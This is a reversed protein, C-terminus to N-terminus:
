NAPAVPPVQDMRRQTDELLQQHYKAQTAAYNAIEDDTLIKDQTKDSMMQQQPQQRSAGVLLIPTAKPWTIMYTEDKLNDPDAVVARTIVLTQRALDMPTTSPPFTHSNTLTIKAPLFIGNTQHFDECQVLISTEGGSIIEFRTLADKLAPDFTWREVSNNPKKIELHILHDPTIHVDATKFLAAINWDAARYDRLGLAVDILQRPDSMLQKADPYIAGFPTRQNSQWRAQEARTPTVCAIERSIVPQGPPSAPDIAKEYRARDGRLRFTNVTEEHFHQNAVQPPLGPPTGLTEYRSTYEITINSLAQTRQLVVNLADSTEDAHLPANFCCLIAIVPILRAITRM